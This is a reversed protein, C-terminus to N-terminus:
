SSEFEKQVEQITDVRQQITNMKKKIIDVLGIVSQLRDYFTPIKAFTDIVFKKDEVSIESSDSRLLNLADAQIQELETLRSHLPDLIPTLVDFQDSESSM